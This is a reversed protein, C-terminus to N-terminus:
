GRVVRGSEMRLLSSVEPANALRPDHTSTVITRGEARLEGLVRVLVEVQAADIHATPEDLLLVEPDRILARAISGRQREGGSLREAATGELAELGLRALLARARDTAERTVAGEPVLPLVVNELLSMRPVLSLDQFVFGVHRRRYLARHHDRMHVISRGAIRVDGETPTALGGLLGLLTTKGSGSPGALVLWEGKQVVVTVGDLVWRERTGDSYRKRLATGELAASM